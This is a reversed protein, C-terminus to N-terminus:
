KAIVVGPYAVYGSAQAGGAVGDARIQFQYGTGVVLGSVSATTALGNLAAPTMSAANAWGSTWTNGGLTSNATGTGSANSGGANRNGGTVTVTPRATYGAGPNDVVISVVGGTVVAHATAQVGGAQQPAGITVSPASVYRSGGSALTIGAIGGTRRSQLTYGSNNNAADTWTFTASGGANAVATGV